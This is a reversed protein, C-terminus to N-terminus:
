VSLNLTEKAAARLKAIKEPQDPTSASILTLLMGAKLGIKGRLETADRGDAKIGTEIRVKLDYLQSVIPRGAGGERGGVRVGM